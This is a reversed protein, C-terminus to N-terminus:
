ISRRYTNEPQLKILQGSALSGIYVALTERFQESARSGVPLLEIGVDCDGVDGSVPLAWVPRTWRFSEDQYNTLPFFGVGGFEDIEDISITTDGLAWRKEAVLKDSVSHDRLFTLRFFGSLKTYWYEEFVETFRSEDFQGWTKLQFVSWLLSLKRELIRFSIGFMATLHYAIASGLCSLFGDLSLDKSHKGTQSLLWDSITNAMLRSLSRNYSRRDLWEQPVDFYQECDANPHELRYLCEGNVFEKTTENTMSLSGADLHKVVAKQAYGMRFGSEFLHRSVIREAFLGYEDAPFPGHKDYTSRTLAFARSAVKRWHSPDSLLNRETKNFLREKARAIKSSRSLPESSFCAVERDNERMFSVLQMLADPYPVAHPETFVLISGRANHTGANFAGYFIDSASHVISDFPRLLSRVQNEFSLDKGNGVVVIEFRDAPYGTQHTWANVSTFAEGHHHILPLIVSVMPYERNYLDPNSTALGTM